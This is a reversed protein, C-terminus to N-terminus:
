HNVFMMLWLIICCSDTRSNNKENLSEKNSPVINQHIITSNSQQKLVNNSKSSNKEGSIQNNSKSLSGTQNIPYNAQEKIEEISKLYRSKERIFQDLDDADWEDIIM